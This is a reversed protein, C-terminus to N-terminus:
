RIGPILTKGNQPTIISSKEIEMPVGIYDVSSAQFYLCVPTAQREASMGVTVLEYIGADSHDGRRITGPFMAGRMGIQVINQDNDSIIKELIDKM